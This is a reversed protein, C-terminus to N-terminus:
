LERWNAQDLTEGTAQRVAWDAAELAKSYQAGRFGIGKGPKVNGLEAARAVYYTIEAIGGDEVIFLRVYDTQSRTYTTLTYITTEGSVRERLISICRERESIEEQRQITTM